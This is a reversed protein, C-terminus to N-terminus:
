IFFCYFNKNSQVKKMILYPFDIVVLPPLLLTVQIKELLNANKKKKKKNNRREKEYIMDFAM